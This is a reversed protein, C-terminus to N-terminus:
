LEGDISQDATFAGIDLMATFMSISRDGKFLTVGLFGAFTSLSRDGNITAIDLFGTGVGTTLWSFPLPLPFTPDPM